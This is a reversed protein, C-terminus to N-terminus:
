YGKGARVGIHEVWPSGDGWIGFTTEPRADRLAFGFLGECLPETPWPYGRAFSSRFLSPNTTWNRTTEWWIASGAGRRAYCEPFLNMYGGAALEDPNVPNRYLAMQAVQPERDLVFALDHLDVARVHVFDDELWYIWDVDPRTATGDAAYEWADAVTQCFGLRDQHRLLGVGADVAGSLDDCLADLYRHYDSDASDDIILIEDPGPRVKAFFSELTRDLVDPRGDTTIVLRYKM